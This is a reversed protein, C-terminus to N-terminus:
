GPHGPFHAQLSPGGSQGNSGAYGAGPLRRISNTSGPYLRGQGPPGFFLFDDLYHLQWRIGRCHFAWALADAVASFIKPASCLGFPLATDIYVQSEWKIGLLAHDDSHVPIVRYAKRLDLKALLTGPGLHQVVQVADEISAYHLSCHSSDITDNISAGQPHLPRCHAEMQGASQDKPHSGHPKYSMSSGAAASPPGVPPRSRDGRM